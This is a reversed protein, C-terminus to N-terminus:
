ERINLFGIVHVYFQLFFRLFEPEIQAFTKLPIEFATISTSLSNKNNNNNTGLCMGLEQKELSVYICFRIKIGCSNIKLVDAHM